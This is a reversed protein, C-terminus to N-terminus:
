NGCHIHALCLSLKNAASLLVAPIILKIV